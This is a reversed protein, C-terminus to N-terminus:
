AQAARTTLRSGHPGMSGAEARAAGAEDLLGHRTLKDYVARRSLGLWDAMAQAGGRCHRIAALLLEREARAMSAAFRGQRATLVGKSRGMPAGGAMAGVPLRRFKVRRAHQHM